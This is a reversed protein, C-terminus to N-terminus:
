PAYVITLLPTAVFGTASVFEASDREEGAFEQSGSSEGASLVVLTGALEVGLAWHPNLWVRVDLGLGVGLGTTLKSGWTGTALGIRAHGGSEIRRSRPPMHPRVYLMANMGDHRLRVGDPGTRESYPRLYEFSGGLELGRQVLVGYRASLALVNTTAMFNTETVPPNDPGFDGIYAAKGIPAVLLSLRHNSAPKVKDAAAQGAFLCLACTLSARLAM